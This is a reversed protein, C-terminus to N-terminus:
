SLGGQLLRADLATQWPYSEVITRLNQESYLQPDDFFLHTMMAHDNKTWGVSSFVSATQPTYSTWRYDTFKVRLQNFDFFGRWRPDSDYAARDYSVAVVIVVAGCAVAIASPLLASRRDGEGPLHHAASRGGAGDGTRRSSDARGLRATRCGCRARADVRRIAPDGTPAALWLLFLGAQAALFATTTFQMTNLFLLEVIAYYVLYIALRRRISGREPEAASRSTSTDLRGGSGVGSAAAPM